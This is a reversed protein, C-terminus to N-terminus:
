QPSSALFNDLEIPCAVLSRASQMMRLCGLTSRVGDRVTIDPPKGQQLAAFFARMQSQDGKAPSRPPTKRVSRTKVSSQKFNEAFSVGPAFIEVREGGSTRSNVTGYTLNAISDM